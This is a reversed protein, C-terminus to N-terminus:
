HEEIRRDAINRPWSIEKQDNTVIPLDNVIIQAIKGTLPSFLRDKQFLGVIMQSIMFLIITIVCAVFLFQDHGSVTEAILWSVIIHSTQIAMFAM